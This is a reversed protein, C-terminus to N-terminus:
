ARGEEEQEVRRVTGMREDPTQPAIRSTLSHYRAALGWHNPREPQLAMKAYEVAVPDHGAIVRTVERAASLDVSPPVVGLSRWETRKVARVASVVPVQKGPTSVLSWGFM